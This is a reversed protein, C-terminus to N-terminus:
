LPMFDSLFDIDAKSKICGTGERISIFIIFAYTLFRPWFDVQYLRQISSLELQTRPFCKEDVSGLLSRLRESRSDAGALIAGTARRLHAGIGGVVAQSLCHQWLCKGIEPNLRDLANANLQSRLSDLIFQAPNSSDPDLLSCIGIVLYKTVDQQDILTMDDLM